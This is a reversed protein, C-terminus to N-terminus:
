RKGIEWMFRITDRLTIDEPEARTLSDAVCLHNAHVEDLSDHFAFESSDFSTDSFFHYESWDYEIQIPDGLQAGSTEAIIKAKARANKAADTLVQEALASQEKVTYNVSFEPRAECTAIASIIDPISVNKDNLEFTLKLEHTTRYGELEDPHARLLRNRRGRHMEKYVQESNWDVTKIDSESFGLGVITRMLNDVADSVANVSKEFKKEKRVVVFSIEAQDPRVQVHGVGKVTIFRKDM